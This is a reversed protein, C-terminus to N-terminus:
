DQDGIRNFNLKKWWLSISAIGLGVFIWAVFPLGNPAPLLLKGIGILLLFITAATTLVLYAGSRFDRGPRESDMNLRQATKHWLGPPSVRQYFKELVENSTAPTLFTIILVFGTSISSMYLLRLWEADVNFLIIPAIVLSIGMASLESYLNIREWLWRLVLVSGTGAGFLLSVHWATQISGLNAMILIAIVLILLNSLRAVIVLEQSSPQRKLWAGNVIRKYIDNSWYSAGWSLHTDVTSALAALLGTLMLGRVGPPLMDKIGTVFLIERGAVFAEGSAAGPEYPYIVLLAIGIPLWFLSRILVQAVTFIFGAFRADKDTRCAMTRQALYGTGDSNMQFFWQLGILILFPYTKSWGNPSFSLIENTRITGYLSVMKDIMSQLGGVHAVAIIAYIMTALMAVSFQVVDTAIVSRLGGTTSYLATFGVIVIISIVNNTTAISPDMSTAGSSLNIGLFNVSANITQYLGAPLWENWYLFVESIRNAAVLVMALVTCNIVTGYYIAKLGRLALVKDGSYRVETLEADTLVGSKRWAKGLIFGMLLFAIAYIWLRWLMYIGSTAIIGTVLLPTDAAYQTAGMSFGAKWGKITRGALFYEELSESAKSKARFGSSISYVVFGLVIILDIM